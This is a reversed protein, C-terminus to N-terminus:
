LDLLSEPNEISEKIKVLFGVAEKGDIMRHDYSLAVYMMDAAVIEGDQIIPRKEIKHMGLIGVQPSNLIPTSLLSGYVGGNTITFGGGQLEYFALSGERAKAALNALAVEIEGGSMQDVNRIVPVVLGRDTGIAISMDYYHRYVIDEGDIYANIKPFEKLALVSAKIFFSMLGLKVGYKEIFANQREKRLRLLASMNIENFTTLMASDHLAQLLRKSITKRISSMRQRTEKDQSSRALKDKLPVFRKNTPVEASSKAPFDIIELKQESVLEESFTSANDSTQSKSEIVITETNHNLSNKDDASYIKALLSGVAVIDGEKVEWVIKGSIPAYILHNVKESELEAIGQNEKVESNSQVLVVNIIVESISEAFNPVFVETIM